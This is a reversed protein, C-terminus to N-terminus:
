RQLYKAELKRPLQELALFFFFFFFFFVLEKECPWLFFITSITFIWALLKSPM